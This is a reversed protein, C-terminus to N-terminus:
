NEQKKRKEWDIKSPNNDGEVKDYMYWFAECGFCTLGQGTDTIFAM